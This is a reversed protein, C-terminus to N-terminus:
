MGELSVTLQNTLTMWYGTSHYNLDATGQETVMHIVFRGLPSCHKSAVIVEDDTLYPWLDETFVTGYTGRQLLSKFDPEDIINAQWLWDRIENEFNEACYDAADIGWVEKGIAQFAKVLGGFGCGVVLIPDPYERFFSARKAYVEPPPPYKTYIPGNNFDEYSALRM